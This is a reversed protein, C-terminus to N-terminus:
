RDNNSVNLYAVSSWNRLYLYSRRNMRMSNMMWFHRCHPIRLLHSLRLDISGVLALAQLVLASWAVALRLLIAVLAALDLYSNGELGYRVEWSSPVPHVVPVLYPLVEASQLLDPPLDLLALYDQVSDQDDSGLKEDHDYRDTNSAQEGRAALYGGIGMSICGACIEATGAYIVTKTQGLSSLGATLAFPVTLGDAFGLTFHSLFQSLRSNTTRQQSDMQYSNFSSDESARGANISTDIPTRPSSALAAYASPDGQVEENQLGLRTLFAKVKGAQM